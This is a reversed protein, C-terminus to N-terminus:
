RRIKKNLYESLREDSYILNVHKYLHQYGNGAFSKFVIDNLYNECLEREFCELLEDIITKPVPVEGHASYIWNIDNELAKIKRYSKVAMYFPAQEDAASFYWINHYTVMDGTFLRKEKQDFLAISGYSHGPIHLVELIKDGIDIKAQNRLFKVKTHELNKNCFDEMSIIDKMIPMKQYRYKLCMEKLQRNDNLLLKGYDLEHIYVEKFHVSGLGHDPDGHSLIVIVPLDTISKIIPIINEYGYGVDFLVAKETGLILFCHISETETIMYLDDALKETKNIITSYM